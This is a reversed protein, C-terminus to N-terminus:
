EESEEIYFTIVERVTEAQGAHFYPPRDTVSRLTPTKFAQRYKQTATDMYRLAMCDGEGADSYAGLCNFRDHQVKPIGEARGADYVSEPLDNVGTDHFDQNTLLPGTHCSTCGGRGKFIKLGRQQKPNLITNAKERNGRALARVFRDFPAPEPLITRVYAAVAKGINAYIVNILDRHHKDISKWARAATANEKTPRAIEPYGGPLEPLAGFVTEYARKYHTAVLYATQTRSIGHELPNEIPGLAQSWLSDKRGDWFFWDNYAVGILPMTRRPGVELGEARPLGDQFVKNEEHCSACSVEGNASFREDHFVLEGLRAAQPDTDYANSPDDPLPPLSMLAMSELTEIEEQSWRVSSNMAAGTNLALLVLGALLLCAIWPKGPSLHRM